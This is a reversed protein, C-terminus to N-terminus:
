SNLPVLILLMVLLFTMMVLMVKELRVKLGGQGMRAEHQCWRAGGGGFHSCWPSKPNLSIARACRALFM